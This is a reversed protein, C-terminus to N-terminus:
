HYTLGLGIASESIGETFGARGMVNLLFHRQLHINAKFLGIGGQDYPGALGWGLWWDFKPNRGSGFGLQFYGGTYLPIHHLLSASIHFARRNGLRLYASFPLEVDDVNESGTLPHRSWFYGGGIGIQKSELNLYPNVTLIETSVFETRSLYLNHQPDYYTKGTLVNKKDFIYSSRIGLSVPSATRHEVGASLERFPVAHKELVEGECGRRILAYQGVGGFLQVSTEASDEPALNIEFPMAGLLLLAFGRRIGIKM